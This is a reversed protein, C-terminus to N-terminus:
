GNNSRWEYPTISNVIASKVNSKSLDDPSLGISNKPYRAVRVDISESLYKYIRSTADRGANDNDLFLVIDNSVRSLLLKQEESCHSGMLASSNEFGNQAVWMAAKFGECVVIPSQVGTMMATLYFRDLGWVVRSKSLQYGPVLEELEERYIKYRPFSGDVSRGSIGVLNGYHNRIPFTIRKRVRDFGIDFERLTEKTFGQNMLEKPAFEFAGLVAEPIDKFEFSVKQYYERQTTKSENVIDKAADIYERSIGLKRLLTPLNWGKNCTHCFSAGTIKRGKGEGVYIYFSPRREKGGKHFPCKAAINDIGSVNPTFEVKEALLNTIYERHM